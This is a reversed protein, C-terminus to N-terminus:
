ARIQKKISNLSMFELEDKIMTCNRIGLFDLHYEVFDTYDISFIFNSIDFDFNKKQILNLVRNVELVSILYTTTYSLNEKQIEVELEAQDEFSNFVLSKLNVLEM